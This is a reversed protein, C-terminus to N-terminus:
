NFLFERDLDLSQEFLLISLIDYLMISQEQEIIFCNFLRLCEYMLVDFQTLMTSRLIKM